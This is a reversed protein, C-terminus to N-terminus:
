SPRARPPSRASWSTARGSRPASASSAASTSTRSSEESVNPIDRTIEEAGLKTDPRRGRAGRHPDLHPRRGPGAAPEPHDRRRLQVRGRCSRSWLNKGLAMEGFDTSPGDALVQRRSRDGEAVIPSQNICTGQNSRRFKHLLYTRRTGDDNMVHHLRRVRGRRGGSQEAVVVDGADAASRYEMGTGVLPARHAGASGGASCTAGMLARNADDHELFPIM